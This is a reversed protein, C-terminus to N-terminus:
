KASGETAALAVKVKTLTGNAPSGVTECEAILEKVADLLAEIPHPRVWPQTTLAGELTERDDDELTGGVRELVTDIAERQRRATDWAAYNDSKLGELRAKSLPMTSFDKATIARPESDVELQRQEQKQIAAVDAEVRTAYFYSEPYVNGSGIGTESCMYSIPEKGATDIRVSGITLERVYYTILRRDLSPM